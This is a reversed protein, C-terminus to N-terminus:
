EFAGELGTGLKLSLALHVGERNVSHLLKKTQVIHALIEKFAYV